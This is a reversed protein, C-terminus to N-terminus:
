ENENNGRLIDLLDKGEDQDLLMYPRDMADVGLQCNEIYEIAKHIRQQEDKITAELRGIYDNIIYAEQNDVRNTGVITNLTEYFITKVDNM